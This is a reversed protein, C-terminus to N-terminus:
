NTLNVGLGVGFMPAILSGGEFTAISGEPGIVDMDGEFTTIGQFEVKAYARGGLRFRTNAGFAFLPSTSNTTRFTGNALETSNGETHQFGGGVFLSFSLRDNLDIAAGMCPTFSLSRGLELENLQFQNWPEPDPRPTPGNIIIPPRTGWPDFIPPRFIVRWDVFWCIGRRIRGNNPCIFTTWTLGFVPEPDPLNDMLLIGANVELNMGRSLKPSSTATDTQAYTFNSLSFCLLALSFLLKKM